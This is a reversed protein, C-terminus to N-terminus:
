VHFATEDNTLAVPVLELAREPTDRYGDTEGAGPDTGRRVTGLVAIRRGPVLWVERERPRFPTTPLDQQEGALVLPGAAVVRISGTGDTLLFPASAARTHEWEAQRRVRIMVAHALCTTGARTKLPTDVLSTTGVLKVLEGERVASVTGRVTSRLLGPTAAPKKRALLAGLRIGDLFLDVLM